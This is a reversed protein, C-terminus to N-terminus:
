ESSLIVVNEFTVFTARDRLLLQAEQEVKGTYRGGLHTGQAMFRWLREVPRTVSTNLGEWQFHM